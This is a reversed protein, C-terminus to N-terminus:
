DLELAERNAGLYRCDARAFIGALLGGYQSTKVKRFLAWVEVKEGDYRLFTGKQPTRFNRMTDGAARMNNRSFFLVPSQTEEYQYKLESATMKIKKASM